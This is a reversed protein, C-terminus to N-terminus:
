KDHSSINLHDFAELTISIMRDEEDLSGPEVSEGRAEPEDGKKSEPTSISVKYQPM